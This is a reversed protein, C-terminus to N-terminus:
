GDRLKYKKSQTRWGFWLHGEDVDEEEDRGILDEPEEELKKMYGRLVGGVSVARLKHMQKVFELFWEPDAILDSEKCQYKIIESLLAGPSSEAKIAQVDLIPKYDVRLCEQWLAIWKKKSLYGKKFFSPKVMLLCHIHPHATRGDKGRTVEVSKIWGVGPFVKLKTLRKFSENMHTITSRLETLPCNKLTLTLFIWRHTPYDVLVKPLMEAARARWRLARRWQCVPCHRVRCFLAGNLKLKLEGQEKVPVLRFDLLQACLSVRQAYRDLRGAQYYESVIEANRKHKDWPKDRPSLDSLAPANDEQDSVSKRPLIPASSNERDSKESVSIGQYEHNLPMMVM